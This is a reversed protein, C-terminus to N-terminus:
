ILFGPDFFQIGRIWIVAGLMLPFFGIMAWNNTIALGYALAMKSLWREEHAVRYELLCRIIYAFFLLDLMEGTISTAHEWFTLQFALAGCALVIPVWAFSITLFSFESRERIRQEHTRDQPLIAISRALLAVTLAGCLATFLNLAIPQIGAPLFRFPYTITFFLPWQVPLDMDWGAIRATMGLSRLSVWHNLTLLFVILTGAGAIWPLRTQVFGQTNDENSMSPASGTSVMRSSTPLNTESSSPM